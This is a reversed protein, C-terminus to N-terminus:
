DSKVEECKPIFPYESYFHIWTQCEGMTDFQETKFIQIPNSTILYVTLVYIM